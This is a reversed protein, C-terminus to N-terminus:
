AGKTYPCKIELVDNPNDLSPDYVWRDPSAGLWGKNLVCYLGSNGYGLKFLSHSQDEVVLDLHHHTESAQYIWKLGTKVNQIGRKIPPPKNLM